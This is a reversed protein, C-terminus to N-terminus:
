VTKAEIIILNKKQQILLVTCLCHIVLTHGNMKAASFKVNLDGLLFTLM